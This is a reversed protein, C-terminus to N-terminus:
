EAVNIELVKVQYPEEVMVTVVDGVGRGMIAKALPCENSIKGNDPDTEFSGVIVYENEEDDALDLMRVRMGPRVVQLNVDDEDILQANQLMVDIEKIRAEVEAQRERAADYDANESLDGQARAAQLDAIVKPREVNVLLDREQRLKEIGSKTLLVKEHEAM